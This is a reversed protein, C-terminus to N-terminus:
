GEPGDWGRLRRALRKEVEALDAFHPGRALLREKGNAGAVRQVFGMEAFLSLANGFTVASGAEPKRAAGLAIAAALRQRMADILEAQSRPTDDMQLVTRAAAWYAECFNDLIGSMSRVLPHELRVEEGALAGETRFYDLLRHLEDGITQREPLPFEWRFFHLWWIVEAQLADGRRGALLSRILLAPLLFFHITNNKYFDATLRKEEPIRVVDDAMRQLLGANELFALSEMFDDANRQLSPTISVRQQRLFRLLSRANEVFEPYRMGAHPASLLVTCSVSTAGAITAANVGRLIHFGLKHVFRAKEKQVSPDDADDRFRERNEGLADKLSIPDGFSVHVAGYKQRLVSRAKFLGWLSEREKKAGELERTYAQEEVIRGYHLSIPVFYLDRRAGEVFANVLASLMGLRPTLIKGTRSRGGEIFFEQTYGERILFALYSRFVARYLPDGEFTRRIFYAGAGRFLSGLPWFSLNIGAAIHPPSLYNAHFLYSLILYDFHSRHCPVLVIPHLKM